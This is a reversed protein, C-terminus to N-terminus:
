SKLLELRLFLWKASINRDKVKIQRPLIGLIDEEDSEMIGSILLTGNKNLLNVWHILENMIVPKNINAFIVDFKKSQAMTSNGLIASIGKENNRLFNERCNEFSWEDNDVATIDQAGMKAALIALIGTGTGMDLVSKERLDMKLIGSVMMQTTPHHGTGFSMKPEIIIEIGNELSDKHFPAKILCFNDILVPEFNSEWLKNWNQEQITKHSIEVSHNRFLPKQLLQLLLKQSFSDSPIYAMLTKGSQLFGEFGFNSLEASVMELAEESFPKIKLHLETYNM